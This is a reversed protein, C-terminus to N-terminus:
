YHQNSSHQYFQLHKLSIVNNITTPSTIVTLQPHSSDQFSDTDICINTSSLYQYINNIFINQTPTSLFTTQTTLFITTDPIMRKLVAANTEHVEQMLLKCMATTIFTPALSEQCTSLSIQLNHHRPISTTSISATSPLQSIQPLLLYQYSRYSLGVPLASM